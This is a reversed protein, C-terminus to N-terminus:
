RALAAAKFDRAKIKAMRGDPHHFVLGECGQAGLTLVLDRIAEYTRPGGGPFTEAEAHAVLEHTRRREPNGNVKPGILEYTGVAWEGARGGAGGAVAEAAYRAFASQEVPEWGMTRGTVADTSIRVYGPPEAKGPKVERRAWWRGDADHMVCTGDYKRTAAGEGALVWTCDPHVEPLVHARDDPDRVFVTPIKEM